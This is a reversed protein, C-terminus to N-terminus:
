GNATPEWMCSSVKSSRPVFEGKKNKYGQGQKVLRDIRQEQTETFEKKTSINAGIVKTPTNDLLPEFKDCIKDAVVLAKDTDLGWEDKLMLVIDSYLKRSISM